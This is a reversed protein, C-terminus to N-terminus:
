TIYWAASGDSFIIIGQFNSDLSFGGATNEITDSGFPAISINNLACNGVKDKIVYFRGNSVSNAPPLTIIIPASTSDVLLSTYTDSSQITTNTSVQTTILRNTVVTGSSIGGGSTIQVAVGSQNNYYLDGSVVYLSRIDAATSLTTNNNIYRTSNVLNLNYSNFSLDSNINIALPTISVGNGTTHDHSDLTTLAANLQTAWQPGLTVTVTPLNLGMNPTIAM